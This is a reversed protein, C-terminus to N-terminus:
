YMMDDYQLCTAHQDMRYNCTGTFSVFMAVSWWFLSKCKARMILIILVYVHLYM